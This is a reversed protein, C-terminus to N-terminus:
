NVLKESNRDTSAIEKRIIMNTGVGFVVNGYFKLQWLTTHDSQVL